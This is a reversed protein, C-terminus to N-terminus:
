SLQARTPLFLIETLIRSARRLNRFLKVASEFFGYVNGLIKVCASVASGRRLRALVPLVPQLRCMAWCGQRNILFDYIGTSFGPVKACMSSIVTGSGIQTFHRQSSMAM